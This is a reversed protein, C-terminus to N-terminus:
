GSPQGPYAGKFLNPLYVWVFYAAAGLLPLFVLVRWLRSRPRARFAEWGMWVWFGVAACIVIAALVAGAVVGLGQRQGVTDFVPSSRLAFSGDKLKLVVFTYTNSDEIVQQKDPPRNRKLLRYRLVVDVSHVDERLKDDPVIQLIGFELYRSRQFERDLNGRIRAADPLGPAFLAMCAEPDNATFAAALLKFLAAVGTMEEPTLSPAALVQPERKAAAQAAPAIFFAFNLICFSLPVFRFPVASSRPHVRIRVVNGM